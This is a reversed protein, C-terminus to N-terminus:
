DPLPFFSSPEDAEAAKEYIDSLKSHLETAIDSASRNPDDAMDAIDNLVKYKLRKDAIEPSQEKLKEYASWMKGFETPTVDVGQKKLEKLTDKQVKKWGAKTSTRATLFQKARAYESRLQNLDKGKTSFAGGSKAAQRTAPSTEGAKSFSRLRKNGASVLRGVVERLDREGLSRFVKADMNLIDEVSKGTVYPSRYRTRAM